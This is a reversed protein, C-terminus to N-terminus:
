RCVNKLPSEFKNALAKCLKKKVTIKIKCGVKLACILYVTASFNSLSCSPPLFRLFGSCVVM